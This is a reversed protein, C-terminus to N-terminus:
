PSVFEYYAYFLQQVRHHLLKKCTFNHHTHSTTLATNPLKALPALTGLVQGLYM